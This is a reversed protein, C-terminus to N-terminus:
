SKSSSIKTDHGNRPQRPPGFNREFWSEGPANAAYFAPSGHDELTLHSYVHRTAKGCKACDLLAQRNEPTCFSGYIRLGNCITCSWAQRLESM